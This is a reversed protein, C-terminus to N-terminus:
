VVDHVMKIVTRLVKQYKDKLFPKLAFVQVCVRWIEKGSALELRVIFKKSILAGQLVSFKCDVM